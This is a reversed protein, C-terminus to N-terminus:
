FYRNFLLEGRQGLELTLAQNTMQTEAIDARLLEGLGPRYSRNDAHLVQVVHGMAYVVAEDIVKSLLFYGVDWKERESPKRREM